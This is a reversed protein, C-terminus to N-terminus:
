EDVRDHVSSIASRMANLSRFQYGEEHFHALFNAVKTVPRSVPNSGRKSCWSAWKKFLSDYSQASKSRWSGLLLKTAEESLQDHCFHERLHAVHSTTVGDANAGWQPESNSTSLPCDNSFHWVVDVAPSSVMSSGELSYGGPDGPWSQVQIQHLVRGILCCPPNAYGKLASWDQLFADTAEALPDPKWSFYQPLQHTLYTWSWHVLSCTPHHNRRTSTSPFIHVLM